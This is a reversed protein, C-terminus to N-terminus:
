ATGDSTDGASGGCGSAAQPVPSRSCVWGAPGLRGGRPGARERDSAWRHPRPRGDEEHGRAAGHVEGPVEVHPRYHLAAGLREARPPCGGAAEGTPLAPPRATPRSAPRSAIRPAQRSAARGVAPAGRLSPMAGDGDGGGGHRRHRLAPVGVSAAPRPWVALPRRSRQWCTARPLRRSRAPPWTPNLPATGSLPHTTSPENGAGGQGCRRMPLAVAVLVAATSRQGDPGLALCTSRAPAGPPTTAGTTRDNGQSGRASRM